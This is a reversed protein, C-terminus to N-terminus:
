IAKGLINFSLYALSRRYPLGDPHPYLLITDIVNTHTIGLQKLDGYIEHGVLLTDKFLIQKLDNMVDEKSTTLGELDSERIGSYKTKYDLVRNKPLMFSDYITNLGADVISVRAVEDGIKTLVFECDIALM